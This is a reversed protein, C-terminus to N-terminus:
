TPLFSAAMQDQQGEALTMVTLKLPASTEWSFVTPGATHLYVSGYTGKRKYGREGVETYYIKTTMTNHTMVTQMGM